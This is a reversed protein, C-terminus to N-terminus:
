RVDLSINGDPMIRPSSKQIWANEQIVKKYGMCPSFSTLSRLLTSISRVLSLSASIKSAYVGNFACSFNFEMENIHSILLSISAIAHIDPNHYFTFHLKNTNIQHLRWNKLPISNYASVIDNISSYNYRSISTSPIALHKQIIRRPPPPTVDHSKEPLNKTPLAGLKM